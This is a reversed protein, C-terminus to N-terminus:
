RRRKFHIKNIRFRYRCAQSEDRYINNTSMGDSISRRLLLSNAWTKKNLPSPRKIAFAVPFVQKSDISTSRRPLLYKRKRDKRTSTLRLNKCPEPIPSTTIKTTMQKMPGERVEPFNNTSTTDTVNGVQKKFESIDSNDNDDIPVVSSSGASTDIGVSCPKQQEQPRQSRLNVDGSFYMVDSDPTRYYFCAILMDQLSQTWYNLNVTFECIIAM